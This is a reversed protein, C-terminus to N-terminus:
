VNRFQSSVEARKPLRTSERIRLEPKLLIQQNGTVPQNECDKAIQDLLLQMARRGIERTPQAVTTLKPHFNGTWAFDDFGVVSVQEPCSVGLENMARVFGLLVKNNSCFVATPPNPMELLAFGFESGAEVSMGGFRCYDDLVPLRAEQMAKRFGELRNAHTSLEPRGALIAIRRHGLGALHRTAEYGAALNDTSVTNGRFGPPIRDFCVIPFRRRALRDFSISPDSCSILVGDVRHSFLTNLQRQEQEPNENANCLIVSNHAGAAVEEAGMIVEPYFPNTVDPIIIGIVNTRGTKLSRAIQDAHYDLAEMARRVKEARKPSVVASSNIVASVTAISVEALRAVDRM